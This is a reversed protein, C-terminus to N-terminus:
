ESDSYDDKYVIYSLPEDVGEVSFEETGTEWEKETIFYGMRNVVHFDAVVYTIGDVDLITWVRKRTDEDNTMNLVYDLEEGYTEFMTGSWSANDNLHNQQPSYLEDFNDETLIITKSM